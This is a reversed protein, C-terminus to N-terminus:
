ILIVLYRQETSVLHFDSTGMLYIHLVTLNTVKRLYM